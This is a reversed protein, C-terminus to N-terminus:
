TTELPKIKDIIRYAEDFGTKVVRVSNTGDYYGYLHLTDYAVKVHNLMKKDHKAIEEYYYDISKRGKTKKIGKLLLYNDLALLVGNYAIGCATKVYKPDNYYNGEKGAKRLTEKANDMYRIAETYSKQQINQQKEQTMFINSKQNNLYRHLSISFYKLKATHFDM